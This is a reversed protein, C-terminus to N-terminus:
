GHNQGVPTEAGADFPCQIGPRLDIKDVIPIAAGGPPRPFADTFADPFIRAANKCSTFIPPWLKFLSYHGGKTLHEIGSQSIKSAVWYKNAGFLNQGQPKFIPRDALTMM